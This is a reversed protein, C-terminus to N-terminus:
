KHYSGIKAKPIQLHRFTSMYLINVSSGHDILVKQHCFQCPIMRSSTLGSSTKTPSPSPPLQRRPRNTDIHINNVTHLYQKKASSSSKQASNRPSAGRKMFKKLPMGLNVRRDQRKAHYVSRNHSRLKLPLSLIQDQQGRPSTPM